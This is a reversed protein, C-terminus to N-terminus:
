NELVISGSSKHFWKWTLRTSQDCGDQVPQFILTLARFHGYSIHRYNNEWIIELHPSQTDEKNKVSKIFRSTQFLIVYSVSMSIYM